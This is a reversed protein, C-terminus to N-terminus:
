KKEKKRFSVELTKTFIGIGLIFFGTHGQYYFYPFFHFRRYWKIVEFKM